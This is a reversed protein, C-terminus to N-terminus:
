SVLFMGRNYLTFLIETDQVSHSLCISLRVSPRVSTRDSKVVAFATRVNRQTALLVLCLINCTVPLLLGVETLIM